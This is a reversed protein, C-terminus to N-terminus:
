IIHIIYYTYVYFAVIPHRNSLPCSSFDLQYHVNLAIRKNQRHKEYIEKLYRCSYNFIYDLTKFVAKM